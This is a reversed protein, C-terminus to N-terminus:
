HATKGLPSPATSQQAFLAAYELLLRWTYCQIDELRMRQAVLRKASLAMARAEEDNGKAWDLQSRLDSLDLKVQIWAPSSTAADAAKYLCSPKFRMM